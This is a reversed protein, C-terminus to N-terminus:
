KIAKLFEGIERWVNTLTLDNEEDSDLLEMKALLNKAKNKIEKKM